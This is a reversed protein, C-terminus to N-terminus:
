SILMLNSGLPNTLHSPTNLCLSITRMGAVLGNRTFDTPTRAALFVDAEDLLLICGWRNALSFNTELAEEVEKASSGLDGIILLNAFYVM